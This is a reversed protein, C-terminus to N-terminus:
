RLLETCIYQVGDLDSIRLLESKQAVVAFGYTNIGYEDLSVVLKANGNIKVEDIFSFKETANSVAGYVTKGNTTLTKFDLGAYNGLHYNCISCVKEELDKSEETWVHPEEDKKNECACEYWHHTTNANKISFNCIHPRENNTTSEKKSVIKSCSASFIAACVCLTLTLFALLLKKM